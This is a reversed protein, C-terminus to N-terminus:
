FDDGAPITLELGQEAPELAAPFTLLIPAVTKPLENM